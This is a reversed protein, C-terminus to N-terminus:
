KTAAPIYSCHALLAVLEKQESTEFELKEMAQSLGFILPAFGPNKEVLLKAVIARTSASPDLTLGMLNQWGVLEQEYHTFAQLFNKRRMELQAMNFHALASALPFVGSESQAHQDVAASFYDEAEAWKRM